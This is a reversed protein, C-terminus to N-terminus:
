IANRNHNKIKHLLEYFGSWYMFMKVREKRSFRTRPNYRIRKGSDLSNIIAIEEENLVFDFVDCNESIHRESSSAPIPICNTDIDWRLIVQSVSKGYKRAIEKLVPNEFLEKDMRALPSYALVTIDNDHCYNVLEQQQFLPHREFQNIVPRVKCFSLLEKLYRLDFNCVGIAECKGSLYLEEMKRWQRKWLYPYPWHLLYINIAGIKKKSEEFCKELDNTRFPQSFKTIVFTESLDCKNLGKGVYEENNYNDSTDILRYGVVHAIPINKELVSKYPYTGLGMQPIDLGNNLTYIGIM